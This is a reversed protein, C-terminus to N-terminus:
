SLAPLTVTILTYQENEIDFDIRGQQQEAMLRASYTGLGTGDAKGSTVYKEFFQGRIKQPIVGANKVTITVEKELRKLTVSVISGAPAAEVSNKLLNVLMSHCLLKEGIILMPEEVPEIVIKVKNEASFASLENSTSEAVELLNVTEPVVQYSGTEMQYLSVSRGLISNIHYVSSEILGIKNSLAAPLRKDASVDSALSLIASLPNKVDHHTLREVEERLKENEELTEVQQKLVEMNSAIKLHNKVRARLVPPSVPKTVYDVAGVELGKAIFRSDAQASLFIVPIHATEPDRKLLECVEIGNKEPMMIDLLILNPQPLKKALDLVKLPKTTAKVKFNDERVINSILEINEPVDDVILIIPPNDKEPAKPKDAEPKFAEPKKAKQRVIHKILKEDKFLKLIKEKIFNATFPKIIFGDVGADLAERINKESPDGSIMLFPKDQWQHHERVKQLLTLGDIKPMNWDSIIVDVRGEELRNLADRGDPSVLVKSFGISVLCSRLAERMPSFDDVVLFRTDWQSDAM